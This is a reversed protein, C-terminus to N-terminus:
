LVAEKALAWDLMALADSTALTVKLHPFRAEAHQKIIKKRATKNEDGTPLKQPVIKQWKQPTVLRRPIGLALLAMDIHGCHRAFSATSKSSQFKGPKGPRGKGVDELIAECANDAFLYKIGKLAALIGAPTDPMKECHTFGGKDRWAIGGSAGPDIAIITKM